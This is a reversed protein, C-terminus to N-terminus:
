ELIMWDLFGGSLLELSVFVIIVQCFFSMVYFLVLYLLSFPFPSSLCVLVDNYQFHMLLVDQDQVCHSLM